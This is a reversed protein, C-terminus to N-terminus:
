HWAKERATIAVRLTNYYPVLPCSFEYNYACYPNYAMNFDIIYRSGSQAGVEVYRGLEYSEAGCTEDRFPVFFDNSPRPEIFQFAWLTQEAGGVEFVFRGPRIATRLEDTSTSMLVTDVHEAPYFAAEVAWAASMPFYRLGKFGIREEVPMPSWTEEIFARDKAERFEKVRKADFDDANKSGCGLLLLLCAFYRM